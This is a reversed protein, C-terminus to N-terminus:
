ISESVGPRDKREACFKTFGDGLVRHYINRARLANLELETPQWTTVLMWGRRPNYSHESPRWQRYTEIQRIADPISRETAKVEICMEVQVDTWGPVESFGALVVDIYGVITAYQGAGKVLAVEQTAFADCVTEGKDPKLTQILKSAVEEQCLYHCALDHLPAKRDADAFGLKQLMTQRKTETLDIEM